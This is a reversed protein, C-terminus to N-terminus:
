EIKLREAQALLARARTHLRAGVEVDARGAAARARTGELLVALRLCALVRFWRLDCLDRPSRQAYREIVWDAGPLLEGGPITLAADNGPMPWLALLQGLDLLPDGFTSLEWDVFAAVEPRDPRFLINGFHVDGHVIGAVSTAPRHRDLWRAVNHAAEFGAAQYGDYREYGALQAMWRPVQREVWDVARDRTALGVAVPDVGSLEILADIVSDALASTAASDRFQSPVGTTATWGAIRDVVYFPQGLVGPDDCALVLRPHRVPTNALATLVRVDHALSQAFRAADAGDAARHLVYGRGARRFAVLQNQTGGSLVEVDSISVDGPVCRTPVAAALLGAFRGATQLAPPADTV